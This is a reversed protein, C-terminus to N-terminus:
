VVAIRSTSHPDSKMTKHHGSAVEAQGRDLSTLIRVKSEAASEQSLDGADM